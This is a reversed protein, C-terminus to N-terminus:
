RRATRQAQFMREANRGRIYTRRLADALAAMIVAKQTRTLPDGRRECAARIADYAPQGWRDLRSLAAQRRQGDRRKKNFEPQQRNWRLVCPRSSFEQGPYRALQAATIAM